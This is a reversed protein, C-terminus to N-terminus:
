SIRGTTYPLRPGRSIARAQIVKVYPEVADEAEQVTTAQKLAAGIREYSSCLEHAVFELQSEIKSWDKEQGSCWDKLKQLYQPDWDPVGGDLNLSDLLGKAQEATWGNDLLTM